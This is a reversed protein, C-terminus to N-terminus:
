FSSKDIQRSSKDILVRFPRSPFLKKFRRSSARDRNSRCGDWYKSTYLPIHHAQSPSEFFTDSGIDGWFFQRAVHGETTSKM